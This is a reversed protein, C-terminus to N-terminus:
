NKTTLSSLLFHGGIGKKEGGLVELMFLHKVNDFVKGADISFYGGKIHSFTNVSKRINWWGKIGLILGVQWM